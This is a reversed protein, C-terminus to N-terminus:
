VEGRYYKGRGTSAAITRAASIGNLTENLRMLDYEAAADPALEKIAGGFFAQRRAPNSDIADSEKAIYQLPPFHRPDTENGRQPLVRGDAAQELPYRTFWGSRSIMTDGVAAGANDYHYLALGSGLGNIRPDLQAESWISLLSGHLNVTDAATLTTGIVVAPGDLTVHRSISSDMIVQDRRWAHIAAHRWSKWSSWNKSGIFANVYALQSTSFDFLKRWYRWEERIARSYQVTRELMTQYATEGRIVGGEIKKDSLNYVESAESMTIAYMKQDQFIRQRIATYVEAAFEPSLLGALGKMLKGVFGAQRSGRNSTFMALYILGEMNFKNGHERLVREMTKGARSGGYKKSLETLIVRMDDLMRNDIVFAGQIAEEFIWETNEVDKQTALSMIFEEEENAPRGKKAIAERMEKGTIGAAAKGGLKGILTEMHAQRPAPPWFYKVQGTNKDKLVFAFPEQEDRAASLPRTFLMLKPKKQETFETLTQHGVMLRGRFRIFRDSKGMVVQYKDAITAYLQAKIYLSNELVLHYLRKYGFNILGMKGGSGQGLPGTPPTEDKITASAMEPALMDYSENPEERAPLTAFYISLEGENPRHSLGNWGDTVQGPGFYMADEGSPKLPSVNWPHVEKAAPFARPDDVNVKSAVVTYDAQRELITMKRVSAHEESRGVLQVLSVRDLQQGQAKDVQELTAFDANQLKATGDKVIQIVGNKRLYNVDPGIFPDEVYEHLAITTTNKIRQLSDFIARHESENFGTLQNNFTAWDGTFTQRNIKGKENIYNADRLAQPALPARDALAKFSLATVTSTADLIRSVAKKTRALRIWNLPNKKHFKVTDTVNLCTRM